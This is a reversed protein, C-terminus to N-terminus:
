ILSVRKYRQNIHRKHHSTWLDNFNYDFKELKECEMKILKQYISTLREDSLVIRM